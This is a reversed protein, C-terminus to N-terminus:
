GDIISKSLTIVPRIGRSTINKQSNGMLGESSISWAGKLLEMAADPGSSTWYGKIYRDGDTIAPEYLNNDNFECGYSRCDYTYDYLWAYPSRPGASTIRTQWGSYESGSGHLYVNGVESQFMKSQEWGLAVDAGILHAIENADLIRPNGVWGETDQELREQAELISNGSNSNWQVNGSTNHNLIMKYNDGSDDYIYFKMCGIKINTPTNNTNFNAYMETETCTTSLDIPDLYVIGKHTDSQTAAVKTGNFEVSSSGGSVTCNAEKTTTVNNGSKVVKYDMICLTYGTMIGNSFTVTGSTPKRGSTEYVLSTGDCTVNGNEITCTEPNFESIMNKSAIQKALGDTYLKASSTASQKKSDEVINLIIPTAILAVIALIVIVALLEILTFGKKMDDGIILIDYNM